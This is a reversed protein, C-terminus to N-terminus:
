RQRAEVAVVWQWTTAPADADHLMLRGVHNACARFMAAPYRAVLQHPRDFDMAKDYAAYVLLISPQECGDYDCTM